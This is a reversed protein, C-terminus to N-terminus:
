SDKSQLYEDHLAVVAGVIQTEIVPEGDARTLEQVQPQISPLSVDASAGALM